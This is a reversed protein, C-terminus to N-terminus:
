DGKLITKVLDSVSPFQGTRVSQFLPDDAFKFANHGAFALNNDVSGGHAIDQLTKQICFSRPDALRGTTNDENDAWNSFNCASLCGMCGAQDDLIERAKEPTVFIMTEEPTRMAESYGDAIWAEVADKKEAPVYIARGRAGVKVEASLEESPKRAYPTQRESRYKLEKLFDNNLQSSYFGTPSYKNLTIDGEKL